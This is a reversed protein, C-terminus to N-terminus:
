RFIFIFFKFYFFNGNKSTNSQILYNDYLISEIYYSTGGVIIPLKKREWIQELLLLTDNRFMHVNYNSHMPDYFSMLHHPINQMEDKTVKNTAIDM